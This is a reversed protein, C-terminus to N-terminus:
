LMNTSVSDWLAFQRESMRSFGTSFIKGDKMYVVQMPKSGEHAKTEQFQLCTYKHLFYVEILPWESKRVIPLSCILLDKLFRLSWLVRIHLRTVNYIYNVMILFKVTSFWTSWWYFNHGWLCICYSQKCYWINYVNFYFM